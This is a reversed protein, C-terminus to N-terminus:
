RGHGSSVLLGLGRHYVDPGNDCNWTRSWCYGAVWDAFQQNKHHEEPVYLLNNPNLRIMRVCRELTRLRQPVHRLLAFRM